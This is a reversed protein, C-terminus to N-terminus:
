GSRPGGKEHPLVMDLLSALAEDSVKATRLNAGYAHKSRKLDLIGSEIDAPGRIDVRDTPLRSDGNLVAQSAVRVEDAARAMGRGSQKVGDQARNLALWASGQTIKVHVGWHKVRLIAATQEARPSTEAADVAVVVVVVVADMVRAGKPSVRRKNSTTMRGVATGADAMVVAVAMGVDAATEVTVDADALAGGAVQRM